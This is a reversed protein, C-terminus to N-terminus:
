ALNWWGDREGLPRGRLRVATTLGISLLGAALTVPAVARRVQLIMLKM